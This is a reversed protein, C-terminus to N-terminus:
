KIEKLKERQLIKQKAIDFIRNCARQLRDDSDPANVYVFRFRLPMIRKMEEGERGM